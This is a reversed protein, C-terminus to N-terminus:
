YLVSCLSYHLWNQSTLKLAKVLRNYERITGSPRWIEYYKVYVYATQNHEALWEREKKDCEGILSPSHSLNAM